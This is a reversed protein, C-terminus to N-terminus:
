DPVHAWRRRAAILNISPTLGFEHALDNRNEGAAHRRRISQVDDATVKARRDTSVQDAGPEAKPRRKRKLAREAEKAEAARRKLDATYTRMRDLYAANADDPSAM